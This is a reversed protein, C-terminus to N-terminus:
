LVYAEVIIVIMILTFGTDSDFISDLGIITVQSKFTCSIQDLESLNLHWQVFTVTTKETQVLHWFAFAVKLSGIGDYIM